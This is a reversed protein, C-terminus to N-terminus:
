HQRLTGSLSFKTSFAGITANLHPRSPLRRHCGFHGSGYISRFNAFSGRQRPPRNSGRLGCVFREPDPSEHRAGFSTRPALPANTAVLNFVQLLDVVLKDPEPVSLTRSVCGTCVSRYRADEDGCVFVYNAFLPEYSKRLRGNPSRYRREIVPAYFAIKEDILQRMLKKEQRAMTYMAWWPEKVAQQSTLLNAPFIDTERDLLPM